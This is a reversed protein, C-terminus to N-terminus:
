VIKQKFIEHIQILCQIRVGKRKKKKKQYQIETADTFHSFSDKRWSKLQKQDKEQNELILEVTNLCLIFPSLLCSFCVM